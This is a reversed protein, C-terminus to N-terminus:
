VLRIGDRDYGYWRGTDPAVEKLAAEFAEKIELSPYHLMLFKIQEIFHDELISFM